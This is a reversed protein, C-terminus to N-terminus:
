KGCVVPSDKVDKNLVLCGDETVMVLDEIRVGIRGPIYIGPEISFCMGPELVVDCTASVDFPEHVQMGICHGTRHIFYEGYGAKEIVSRAAKDVDSFKAGPKVAAIGALNAQLVTNYVEPDTNEGLFYTRTMDSCYDKYKCGMDIVINDGEKIMRDSPMAHPDAAHDGFAVIPHFSVSGVVDMFTKEVQAALELETMGPKILTRVIGMVEDNLRSAEIMYEREEDVKVCQVAEILNGIIYKCEPKYNMLRMTFMSPYFRDIAITGDVYESLVKVGDIADNYRIIDFQESTECPFLDNLFLKSKGSKFVVLAAMREMTAFSREVYYNMVDPQSVICVDVKEEIMKAQLKEIRNM